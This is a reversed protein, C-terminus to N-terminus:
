ILRKSILLDLKKGNVESSTYGTLHEFAHNFLRIRNEKDWVIIPANAYDILIRLITRQTM